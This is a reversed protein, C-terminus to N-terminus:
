NKDIIFKEREVLEALRKNRSAAFGNGLSHELAYTTAYNNLEMYRLRKALKRAQSYILSLIILVLLQIVTNAFLPGAAQFIKYFDMM